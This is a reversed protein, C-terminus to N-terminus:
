QKAEGSSGLMGLIRDQVRADAEDIISSQLHIYGETTRISRHGMVEKLLNIDMDRHNSAVSAKAHRLAHIDIEGKLGAEELVQQWVRRPYLYPQGRTRPSPFVYESLHPLAQIENWVSHLRIIKSRKGKNESASLVACKRSEDLQAWRMTLIENRRAGTLAITKLALCALANRESRNAVRQLASGLATYDANSLVVERRREEYKRVGRTPNPEIGAYNFAASLWALARNATPPKDGLASHWRRVEDRTLETAPRDGFYPLIHLRITSAADRRTTSRSKTHVEEQYRQMLAAVTNNRVNIDQQTAARREGLSDIGAVAGGLRERALRRAQECTIVGHAGLTERRDAGGKVRYRCVYKKAGIPQRRSPGQLEVGFGRLESDWVIRRRGPGPIPLLDVTRKTFKTKTSM